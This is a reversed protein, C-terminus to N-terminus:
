KSFDFYNPLECTICATGNFFPETKPCTTLNLILDPKKGIFNQVEPNSNKLVTEGNSSDCQHISQNFKSNPPCTVCNKLNVDYIYQCNICHNDTNVYPTTAPCLNAGKNILSNVQDYYDKPNTKGYIWNNSPNDLNSVWQQNPAIPPM